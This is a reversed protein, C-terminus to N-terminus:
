HQPIYVPYEGYLAKFTEAYPKWDGTKCLHDFADDLAKLLSEDLKM